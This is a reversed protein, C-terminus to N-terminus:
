TTVEEITGQTLADLSVRYLGALQLLRAIRPAHTGSEWRSIAARQIDLVAGVEEQTLGANHRAQALNEHLRTDTSM